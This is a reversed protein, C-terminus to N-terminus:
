AMVRRCVGVLRREPPRVVDLSRGDISFLRDLMREVERIHSESKREDSLEVGYFSSAVYEHLALGQVIRVLAAVDNPLRELLAAYKGASAMAGNRSYFDLITKRVPM